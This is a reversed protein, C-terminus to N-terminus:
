RGAGECGSVLPPQQQGAAGVLGVSLDLFLEHPVNHATCLQLVTDKAVHLKAGVGQLPLITNATYKCWRLCVWLSLCDVPGITLRQWGASEEFGLLKHTSQFM